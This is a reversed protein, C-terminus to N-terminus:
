DDKTAKEVLKKAAAQEAEIMRDVWGMLEEADPLTNSNLNALRAAISIVKAIMHTNATQLMPAAHRPISGGAIAAGLLMEVMQQQKRMLMAVEVTKAYGEGKTAKLTDMIDFAAEFAQDVEDKESDNKQERHLDLAIQVNTEAQASHGGIHWDRIQEVAQGNEGEYNKGNKWNYITAITGDSFKVEWEADTKYGDGGTPAGFLDCLEQYSADIEGQLSTGNINISEQNHTIFTMANAGTSFSLAANLPEHTANNLHATLCGDM